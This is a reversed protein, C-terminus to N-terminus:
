DDITTTKRKFYLDLFLTISCYNWSIYKILKMFNRPYRNNLCFVVFFFNFWDFKIKLQNIIRTKKFIFTFLFFYSNTSSRMLRSLHKIQWQVWCLICIFGNNSLYVLLIFHNKLLRNYVDAFSKIFLQQTNM